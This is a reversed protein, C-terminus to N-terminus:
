EKPIDNGNQNRFWVNWDVWENSAEKKVGEGYFM